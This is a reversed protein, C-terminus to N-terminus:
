GLVYDTLAADYDLKGSKIAVDYDAFRSKEGFAVLAALMNFVAAPDEHILLEELLPLKQRQGAGRQLALVAEFFSGRKYVSTESARGGLALKGLENGVCFGDGACTAAVQNLDTATLALGRKAAEDRVLQFIKAGDLVPFEQSTVPKKLLFDLAGSPQDAASLAVVVEKVDSLARLTEVYLPMETVSVSLANVLKIFRLPDFLSRASVSDMFRGLEYEEELDFNQVSLVSHKKAYEATIAELKERRRYADPGYLFIIM